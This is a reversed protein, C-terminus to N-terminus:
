QSRLVNEVRIQVNSDRAASLKLCCDAIQGSLDRFGSKTSIAFNKPRIVCMLCLSQVSDNAVTRSADSRKLVATLVLRYPDCMKTLVLLTAIPSVVRFHVAESVSCGACEGGPRERPDRRM